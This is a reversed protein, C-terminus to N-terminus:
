YEISVDDVLHLIHHPRVGGMVEVIDLHNNYAARHLPTYGDRDKSKMLNADLKLLKKVM